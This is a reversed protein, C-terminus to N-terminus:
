KHIMDRCVQVFDTNITDENFSSGSEYGKRWFEIMTGHVPWASWSEKVVDWVGILLVTAVGHEHLKKHWMIQAPRIERPHLRGRPDFEGVKLEIPLLQCDVVIQIDPIGIGTGRRPEYSEIWGSWNQRLWKKFDSENM